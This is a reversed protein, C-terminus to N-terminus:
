NFVALNKDKQGLLAVDLTKLQTLKFNLTPGCPAFGSGANFFIIGDLMEKGAMGVIMQQEKSIATHDKGQPAILQGM